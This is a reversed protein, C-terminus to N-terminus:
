DARPPFVRAALLSGTAEDAITLYCGEEGDQTRFREKADLQWSDHAIRSQEPVPAPPLISRPMKGSGNFLRRQYQRASRLPLDPFKESIKLLIFPIGWSLHLHQILRVLRFAIEDITSTRRGCAQYSAPLGAEGNKQYRKWINKVTGVGIRLSEAIQSNTHGSQKMTVMQTRIDLTKAQGM